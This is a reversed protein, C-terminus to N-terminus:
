FRFSRFSWYTDIFCRRLPGLPGLRPHRVVPAKNLPPPNSICENGQYVKEERNRVGAQVRSQQSGSVSRGLLRSVNRHNVSTSGM